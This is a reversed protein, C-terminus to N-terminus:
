TKNRQFSQTGRGLLEVPIWAAVMTFFPLLLYNYRDQVEILAFTAVYGLAVLLLPLVATERRMTQMAVSGGFLALVVLMWGQSMGHRLNQASLQAGQASSWCYDYTGFQYQIKEKCLQLVAEPDQLRQWVLKRLAAEDHELAADQLNWMGGARSNLGVALKYAMHPQTMPQQIVQFQLLLASVAVTAGIMWVAVVGTRVGGQLLVKAKQRWRRQCLARYIAYCAIALVVVAMEPRLLNSAALAAGGLFTNCWDRPLPRALLLWVALLCFALAIHQNTLVSTFYLAAPNLAMMMGACWGTQADLLASAIRGTLLCSAAGCVAFCIQLTPVGGGLLRLVASETLVFPMHVSWITGYLNQSDTAAARAQELGGAAIKQALQYASAFDDVPTIPWVTLFFLRALLAVAFVSVLGAAPHARTYFSLIGLGLIGTLALLACPLLLGAPNELIGWIALSCFGVTLVLAAAMAVRAVASTREETWQQELLNVWLAIGRRVRM